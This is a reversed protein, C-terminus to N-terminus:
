WPRQPRASKERRETTAVATNKPTAITVTKRVPCTRQHGYAPNEGGKAATEDEAEPEGDRPHHVRGFDYTEEVHGSAPVGGEGENHAARQEDGYWGGAQDQAAPM